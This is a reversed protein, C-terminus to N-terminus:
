QEYSRYAGDSMTFAVRDVITYNMIGVQIDRIRTADHTWLWAAPITFARVDGPLYEQTLEILSQDARKEFGEIYTVQPDPSTQWALSVDSNLQLTTPLSCHLEGIMPIKGQVLRGNIEFDFSFTDAFTRNFYAIYFDKGGYIAYQLPVPSGQIDLDISEFSQSEDECAIIVYFRKEFISPPQPDSYSMGIYFDYDEEDPGTDIENVPVPDPRAPDDDCAMLSTMIILGILVSSIARM